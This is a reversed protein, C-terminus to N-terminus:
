NDVQNSVIDYLNPIVLDRPDKLLYSHSINGALNKKHCVQEKKAIDIREWLYDIMQQPLKFLQALTGQNLRIHEVKIQDTM